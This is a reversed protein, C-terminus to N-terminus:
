IVAAGPLGHAIPGFPLDAHGIAQEGAGPGVEASWQRGDSPKWRTICSSPKASRVGSTVPTPRRMTSADPPGTILLKSMAANTSEGAPM